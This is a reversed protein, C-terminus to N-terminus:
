EYILKISPDLLRNMVFHALVTTMNARIIFEKLSLNKTVRATLYQSIIM